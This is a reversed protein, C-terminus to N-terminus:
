SALSDPRPARKAVATASATVRATAKGSVARKGRLTCPVYEDVAKGKCDDVARIRFADDDKRDCMMCATWGIPLWPNLFASKRPM